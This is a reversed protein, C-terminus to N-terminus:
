APVDRVSWPLNQPYKMSVLLPNKAVRSFKQDMKDQVDKVDIIAADWKNKAEPLELHLVFRLTDTNVCKQSFEKENEMAVYRAAFLGSMSCIFKDCIVTFFGDEYDKTSKRYDKVEILWLKSEPDIACFDVSRIGREKIGNFGLHQGNDDNKVFKWADYKVVDWGDPFEFCLSGERKGGCPAVSAISQTRQTTQPYKQRKARKTKNKGM